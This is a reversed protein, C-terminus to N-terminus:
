KKPYFARIHDGEQLNALYNTCIGEFIGKGSWAKERLIGVTISCQGPNKLSSSSISFYRVKLSSLMDLYAEFPIECAPFAILLDLVSVGKEQVEKKFLQKGEEDDELWQLLKQKEPPCETYKALTKLQSKSAVEQIELYHTLLDEVSIAQNLPLHSKSNNQLSLQIITNSKVGFRTCVKEVLHSPNQPFIGLHDGAQYHLGEPLQIEIHRTSRDSFNDSVKNQLERNELIKLSSEHAKLTPSLKQYHKNTCINNQPKSCYSSNEQPTKLNLVKIFKKGSTVIGFKLIKKLTLVQMLKEEELFEQQM